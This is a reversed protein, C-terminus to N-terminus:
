LRRMLEGFGRIQNFGHERLASWLSAQNSTVVPIGKRLEIREIAHILPLNTCSIFIVDVGNSIEMVLDIVDEEPTRGIAINDTLGLGKICQVDFGYSELFSKEIANVDEIYPTAVGISGGGLSDLASVVAQGTSITKIGTRDQINRVLSKEWEVGGILSGSTCGYIIVDVDASALLVAGNEADEAMDFLSERTVEKLRMRASHISVGAPAMAYLDPEMTTNSSPLLLGIRMNEVYVSHIHCKLYYNM